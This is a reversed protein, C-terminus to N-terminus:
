LVFEEMGTFKTIPVVPGFPEIQMIDADDPVDTLVTPRYGNGHDGVRKGGTVLSAGRALADEIGRAISDRQRGNALPGMDTETGNGPGVRLAGAIEAMREVFPAHIAEHVFFRSPAVCVQGANRFKAAALADAARVPDVDAFIGAAAHGGLELTCKKLHQGCLMAVARGARISGTISAKRIVSSAVLREAIASPDGFVVSLCDEPLGARYCLLALEIATRPTEESPKLIVSCGAALATAVKRAPLVLPFNWPTFAVVPGVPERSAFLHRNASRGPIVRGYARKGEEGAWDFVEAAAGVEAKAERLVKGQEATLVAALRDSEVRLLDAVRKLVVGRDWASVHRWHRFGRDAATLADDLDDVSALTISGIRADDWPDLVPLTARGGDTRMVGGVFPASM